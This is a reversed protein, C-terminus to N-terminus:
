AGREDSILRLTVFGQGTDLKDIRFSRGRATATKGRYTPPSAAYAAQFETLDAVAELEVEAEYGGAEFGRSDSVENLVCSVATGGAIAVAEGGIVSRATQFQAKAFDTLHSM